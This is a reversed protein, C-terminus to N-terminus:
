LREEMNENWEGKDQLMKRRAAQKVNHTPNASVAAFGPFLLRM